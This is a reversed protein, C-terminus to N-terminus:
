ALAQRIQEVVPEAVLKRDVLWLLFKTAQEQKPVLELASLLHKVCGDIDKCEFLARAINIHLNDDVESMELARSFYEVAQRYMKAKRLNIGFENFMHKHQPEYTADLKVLRELIDNAKDAEGRQLYTLGIGFNARVNEVDVKLAAGYEFEAAFTEGNERHADANDLARQLEQMKPYVSNMYFEPEPAYQEMLEELTITHKPGSPVFNANLAQSEIEGEMNQEVFFYNKAVTKRQTTGTGLTHTEQM